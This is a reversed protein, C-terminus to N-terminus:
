VLGTQPTAVEAFAWPLLEDIRNIPHDAIRTLVNRLYAEPDLGNLKATEILSLIGAARDGGKDSGAFLWNKRGLAIPRISREAANNDIEITGDELFRGLAQWRNLAYRIAEATGSKGPVEALRTKLWKQLAEFMPKSKTQRLKLREDPPSGRIAMEIDYLAGIRQLAEGAIPAPGNGTLDFFKRRVHAMCAAELVKPPKAEYLEKFGAYGDAHLVGRFHKLHATPHEGKRDPSYFYCVAPPTKSGYPRGDRVYTWLRGTKTKGKGPALVPVPTDDGHLRDGAFVHDRLTEILPAMLVSAKGVWDAMTSRALEVGERAYIESQRYLPLHDCYKATLVHAVLGPGPKGREIPLSPMAATIENDCGKCVFRPQVHRMVRFSAPIYDLVETVGTGGKLFDRGGCCPCSREGLDHVIEHRPLHDPLPQRAPKTKPAEARGAPAEFPLEAEAAEIEELALELQAIDRDIKESSKGFRARRLVALQEKLKDILSDRAQLQGSQRALEEAQRACLARLADIDDPLSAVTSSM